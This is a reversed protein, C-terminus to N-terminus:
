RPSAASLERVVRFGITSRPTNVYEKMRNAVRQEIPKLAWNGGRVARDQCSASSSSERDGLVDTWCNGQWESVNGDIDFLGAASPRFKGVESTRVVGDNCPFVDAYDANAAKLSEDAGNGYACFLSPEDGFSYRGAGGAPSARAAYEWEVENPLRYHMGTRGAIWRVYSQADTWTVNVVPHRPGASAERKVPRCGRQAVCADWEDNTIETVGMAFAAINAPAQLAEDLDRGEESPPSGILGKGGRIATMVPCESCDKFPSGFAPRLVPTAPLVESTSKESLLLWLALPLLLLLALTVVRSRSMGLLHGDVVPAQGTRAVPRFSRRAERMSRVSDVFRNWESDQADAKWQTLDAAHWRRFGFPPKCAKITAPVLKDAEAAVSAEERVWRSQVSHPSWLAIVVLAQELREAIVDDFEQGAQLSRDMWITFGQRDLEYAIREAVERDEHSYSIFVDFTKSSNM